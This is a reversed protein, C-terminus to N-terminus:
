HNHENKSYWGRIAGSLWLWKVLEGSEGRRVISRIRSSARLAQVIRLFFFFFFVKAIATERTSHTRDELWSSDVVAPTNFSDHGDIRVNYM